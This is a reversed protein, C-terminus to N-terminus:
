SFYTGDIQTVGKLLITSGDNLTILTDAGGNVQTSNALAFTVTDTGTLHIRDGTGQDFGVITDAYNASADQFTQGSGGFNVLADGAFATVTDNAGDDYITTTGTLIAGAAVHLTGGNEVTTNNATGGSSVTESGGSAITLGSTTGSSMVVVNVGNSVTGGAVGVITTTTGLTYGSAIELTGGSAITTTGGLAAGGFLELAGGSAVTTASATGGARVVETGGSAVTLGSTTGSSLVTVTIGRSVTGGAVGVITTTAGLTYGSGIELKGGSAVTTTGGLV